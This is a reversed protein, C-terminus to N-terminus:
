LGDKWRERPKKGKLVRDNDFIFGMTGPAFDREPMVFKGVERVGHWAYCLALVLDDNMGDPASTVLEHSHASEPDVSKNRPRFQYQRLEEMLNISRLLLHDRDLASRLNPITTDGPSRHHGLLDSVRRARTSELRGRYLFPYGMEDYLRRLTPLGFQREGVIFANYYWVGLGHLIGAFTADGWWGRAEAVQECVGDSRKKLVVAADYDRGVLGAAFDCGIIYTCEIDPDEWIKVSGNDYDVGENFRVAHRATRGGIRKRAVASLDEGDPGYLVVSHPDILELTGTKPQVINPIQRDLSARSFVSDGSFDAYGGQLRVMLEKDGTTNSSAYHEVDSATMSPNDGIGGKDWVWISPHSQIQRAQDATLGLKRHHNEWPQIIERVFWTMGELMTAAVMYRTRWKGRRRFQFETWLKREPHEDFCVFDLGVGMISTWDSDASVVHMQSDNPWTYFKKSENWKWGSTFVEDELQQKVIEFQQFKKTVWVGQVARKGRPLLDKNYPDDRQLIMDAAIAMMTTKGWGNGPIAVRIKHRSRLFQSQGKDHPKILWRPKKETLQAM